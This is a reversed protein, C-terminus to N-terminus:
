RGEEMLRLVDAGSLRRRRLLADAVLLIMEWVGSDFYHKLKSCIDSVVSRIEVESLKETVLLNLYRDIDHSAQERLIPLLPQLDVGSRHLHECEAFFGSYAILGNEFITTQFRRFRIGGNLGKHTTNVEDYFEEAEFPSESIFVEEVIGRHILTAIVTHAAEHIATQELKGTGVEVAEVSFCGSEMDRTECYISSLVSVSPDDDGKKVPAAPALMDSFKKM